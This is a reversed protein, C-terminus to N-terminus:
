SLMIGSNQLKESILPNNSIAYIIFYLFREKLFLKM